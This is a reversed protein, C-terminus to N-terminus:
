VFNLLVEIRLKKTHTTKDGHTEVGTFRSKKILKSLFVVFTLKSTKGLIGSLIHSQIWGGCINGGPSGPYSSFVSGTTDESCHQLHVSLYVFM